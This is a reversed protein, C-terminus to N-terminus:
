PGITWSDNDRQANVHLVGENNYVVIDYPDGSPVWLSFANENNRLMVQDLAISNTPEGQKVAAVAIPRDPVNCSGVIKVKKGSFLVTRNAPAISVDPPHVLIADVRPLNRFGVDASPPPMLLVPEDFDRQDQLREAIARYEHADHMASWQWITFPEIGTKEWLLSALWRQGQPTTHKLVHAHGAHVFLKTQPNGQFLGALKTAAYEERSEHSLPNFDYGLLQFDLDIARRIVNGFQPDSTYFGSKSIPFGRKKLTDGSEGIAEAAYHTFGEDAFFPLTEGIMERTKSVFHDEMVMVIQERSAIQAIGERWPVVSLKLQDENLKVPPLEYDPFFDMERVEHDRGLIALSWGIQQRNFNRDNESDANSQNELYEITQLHAWPPTDRSSVFYWAFASMSLLIVVLIVVIRRFAKSSILRRYM